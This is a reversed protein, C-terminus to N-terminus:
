VEKNKEFKPALFDGRRLIKEIEVQLAANDNVGTVFVCQTKQQLLM